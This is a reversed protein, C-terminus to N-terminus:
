KWADKLFNKDINYMRNVIRQCIDSWKELDDKAGPCNDLLKDTDGDFRNIIEIINGVINDIDECKSFLDRRRQPEYDSVYGRYDDTKATTKVNKIFEKLQDKDKLIKEALESFINNNYKSEKIYFILDKM